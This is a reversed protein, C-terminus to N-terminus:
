MYFSTDHSLQFVRGSRRLQRAADREETTMAARRARDRERRRAVRRRLPGICFRRFQKIARLSGQKDKIM